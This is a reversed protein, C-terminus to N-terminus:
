GWVFAGRGGGGGGGRCFPVLSSCVDIGKVGVYVHLMNDGTCLDCAHTAVNNHERNTTLPPCCNSYNFKLGWPAGSAWYLGM